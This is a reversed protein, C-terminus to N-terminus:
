DEEHRVGCYRCVRVWYKGTKPDMTLLCELKWFHGDIRCKEKFVSMDAM